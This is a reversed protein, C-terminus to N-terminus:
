RWLKPEVWLMYQLLVDENWKFLLLTSKDGFDEDNILEKIEDVTINERKINKNYLLYVLIYMVNPYVEKSSALYEWLKPNMAQIDEVTVIQQQSLHHFNNQLEHQALLLEKYEKQNHEHIWSSKIEALRLSIWSITEKYRDINDTHQKNLHNSVRDFFSSEFTDISLHDYLDKNQPLEHWEWVHGSEHLLTFKTEIGSSLNSNFFIKNKKHMWSAAWLDKIEFLINQLEDVTEDIKKKILTDTAINKQTKYANIIKPFYIHRLSDIEEYSIKEDISSKEPWTSVNMTVLLDKQAKLVIGVHMAVCCLGLRLLNMKNTQQLRSM